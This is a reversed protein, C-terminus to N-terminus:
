KGLDFVDRFEDIINKVRTDKVKFIDLSSIIGFFIWM